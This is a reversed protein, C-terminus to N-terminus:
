KWERVALGMFKLRSTCWLYKELTVHLVSAAKARAVQASMGPNEARLMRAKEQFRRLCEAEVQRLSEIDDDM